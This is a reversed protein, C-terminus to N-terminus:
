WCTYAASGDLGDPNRPSPLMAISFPVCLRATAAKLRAMRASGPIGFVSRGNFLKKFTTVYIAESNLFEHPLDTTPGDTVAVLDLERATQYVQEVLQKTPCLYLVSGIEEHLLSQLMLLGVLTKGSGTNMKMIIDRDKRRAHWAKLMEGQEKATERETARRAAQLPGKGKPPEEAKTAPKEDPRQVLPSSKKFEDIAGRLLKESDPSLAKDKAIVRVELTRSERM